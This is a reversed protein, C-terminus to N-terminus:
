LSRDPFRLGGSRKSHSDHQPMGMEDPERGASPCPQPDGRQGGAPQRRAPPQPRPHVQRGTRRLPRAHGRPPRRAPMTEPSAGCVHVFSGARLLLRYSVLPRFHLGAPRAPLLRLRVLAGTRRFRCPRSGQASQPPHQRLARRFACRDTAPMRRRGAPLPHCIFFSLTSEHKQNTKVPCLYYFRHARSFDRCFFADSSLFFVSRQLKTFSISRRIHLSVKLFPSIYSSVFSKKPM